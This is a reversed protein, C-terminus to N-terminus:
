SLGSFVLGRPDTLGVSVSSTFLEIRLSFFRQFSGQAIKNHRRYCGKTDGINPMVFVCIVTIYFMSCSRSTICLVFVLHMISVFNFCFASTELTPLRHMITGCSNNSRALTPFLHVKITGEKVARM